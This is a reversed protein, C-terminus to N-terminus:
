ADGALGNFIREHTGHKFFPMSNLCIQLKKRIELGQEYTVAPHVVINKHERLEDGWNRSSEGGCGVQAALYM